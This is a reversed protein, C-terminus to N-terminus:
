GRIYGRRCKPFYGLDHAWRPLTLVKEFTTGDPCRYLGTDASNTSDPSFYVNGDADIFSGRIRACSVSFTKLTEFTQGMDVSKQISNTTGIYINGNNDIIANSLIPLSSITYDSTQKALSRQYKLLSIM